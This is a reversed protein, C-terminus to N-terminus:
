AERVITVKLMAVIDRPLKVPVEFSGLTKLPEPLDIRRRDIPVGAKEAAEAVHISTVAGFLRDGEGVKMPIEIRLAEIAAKAGESEKREKLLRREIVRKNHELQRENRPNRHLAMGQPILYNRAYGDRVRVVEGAKGLKEVDQRLIVEM